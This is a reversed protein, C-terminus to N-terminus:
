LVAQVPPFVLRELPARDPLPAGNSFVPPSHYFSLSHAFVFSPQVM